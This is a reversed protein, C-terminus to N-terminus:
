IERRSYSADPNPRTVSRRIQDEVLPFSLKNLIEIQDKKLPFPTVQVTQSHYPSMWVTLASISFDGPTRSARSPSPM